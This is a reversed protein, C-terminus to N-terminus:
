RTAGEATLAPRSASARREARRQRAEVSGWASLVRALTFLALVMTILVLAAGWLDKCPGLEPCYTKNNWIFLPLAEQEGSFLNANMLQGGLTTMILPATEGVVRAVGLLVATLLGSRATPLVVSWVTRWESGGLALSGERLGDPVLRLVEESARAVTPLMLISLAMSAGFGSFQHGLALGWISYIFLGAVISPVGSMTQVFIRVPREFPGGIENLFVACLLGLPVAILVAAGVQELTGVVAFGIGLCQPGNLSGCEPDTTFLFHLSIISAGQYIVDGVVLLLPVLMAGALTVIVVTVLRDKAVPKGHWIRAAAWYLVLFGAYWWMVFGPTGANVTLGQYILWVLALSALMAGLLLLLDDPRFPRLRRRREARGAPPGAPDPRLAVQM